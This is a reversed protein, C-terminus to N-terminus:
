AAKDMKHHCSVCLEIYWNIDRIWGGPEGLYAWHTVGNRSACGCQECVGTKPHHKRLWLHVGSYGVEDGRWVGRSLPRREVGMHKLTRAICSARIHHKAAIGRFSMGSLYDAAIQADRKPNRPPGYNRRPVGDRKLIHWVGKSTLGYKGGVECRSMGSLYDAAIQADRTARPAPATAVGAGVTSSGLM